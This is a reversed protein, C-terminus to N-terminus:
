VRGGVQGRAQRTAPSQSPHSRPLQVQWAYTWPQAQLSHLTPTCWPPPTTSSDLTASTAAGQPQPLVEPPLPMAESRFGHCDVDYCKQFWVSAQM